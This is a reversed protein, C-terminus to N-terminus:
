KCKYVTDHRRVRENVKIGVIQGQQAQDIVTNEIQMSTIEQRFDTTHGKIHIRDGVKLSGKTIEIIAASPKAFFGAIRGIEEEQPEQKNQDEM